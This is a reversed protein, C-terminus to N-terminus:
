LTLPAALVETLRQTELGSSGTLSTDQLLSVLEVPGAPNEQHPGSGSLPKSRKKKCVARKGESYGSLRSALSRIRRPKTLKKRDPDHVVGHRQLSQKAAFTKGCGPHTCAFPRNEEHFSSIHHELNFATTFSRQCGDRPCRLVVRDAAHVKQHAKLHWPEKYVKSCRDCRLGLWQREAAHREARHRLYETWTKGTFACADEPCPYGRHVKQHRRLGSPFSFAARCGPFACRCPPVQAHQECVHAKLLKNKRFELGCGEYRCTYKRSDHSHVREVHRTRNANTTFAETCADVGCVFPKLGSHTLAHRALHQQTTLTRGCGSHACAHPKVGTHKCLHADLKWRKNYAASCDPFSCIFRKHPESPSEM